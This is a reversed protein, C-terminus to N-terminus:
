VQQGHSDFHSSANWKVVCHLRSVDNFTMTFSNPVSDFSLCFMVYTTLKCIVSKPLPALRTTQLKGAYYQVRDAIPDVITTSINLDISFFLPPTCCTDPRM